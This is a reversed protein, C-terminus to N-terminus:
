GVGTLGDGEGKEFIDKGPGPLMRGAEGARLMDAELMAVSALKARMPTGSGLLKAAVAAFGTRTPGGVGEKLARGEMAAVELELATLLGGILTAPTGSKV